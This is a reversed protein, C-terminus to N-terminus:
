ENYVGLRTLVRTLSDVDPILLLNHKHMIGDFSFKGEIMM